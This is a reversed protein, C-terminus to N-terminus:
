KLNEYFSIGLFTQTEITRSLELSQLSIARYSTPVDGNLRAMRGHLVNLSVGM